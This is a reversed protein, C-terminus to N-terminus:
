HKWMLSLVAYSREILSVGEGECYKYADCLDHHLIGLKTLIKALIFKEETLCDHGDPVDCPRHRQYPELLKTKAQVTLQVSRCIYADSEKLYELTDLPAVAEQIHNEDELITDVIMNAQQEVWYSTEVLQLLQRLATPNDIKPGNSTSSIGFNQLGFNIVHATTTDNLIRSSIQLSFLVTDFM